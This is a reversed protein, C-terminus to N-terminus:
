TKKFIYIDIYIYIYKITLFQKKNEIRLVMFYSTKM